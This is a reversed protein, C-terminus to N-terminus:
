NSSSIRINQKIWYFFLLSLIPSPFWFVFKIRIFEESKKGVSSVEKYLIKLIYIRQKFKRLMNGIVILCYFHFNRVKKKEDEQKWSGFVVEKEEMLNLTWLLSFVFSIIM